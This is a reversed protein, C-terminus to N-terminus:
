IIADKGCSFNIEYQNSAQKPMVKHPLYSIIKSCKECIKGVNLFIESFDIPAKQQLIEISKLIIEPIELGIFVFFELTREYISEFSGFVM